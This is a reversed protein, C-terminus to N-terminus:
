GPQRWDSHPRRNLVFWGWLIEGYGRSRLGRRRFFPQLRRNLRCLNYFPVRPYYHHELHFNSWLFLFHWLPNGDVLTSWGAPDAPDIDYHQGLRNLSFAVPFMFFLPVVYVRLLTWGGASLAITAILALHFLVNGLRERRITRQEPEDYTAAERRSGRAYIVFLAPTWYLLKFLRTNRRPSLHARKPDDRSSGLEQHHDLHWTRFQSASIGSPMAYLLGLLRSLRPRDRRFIAEHVQEHLLVVTGLVNFGQLLAAPAWLWPWRAQWLAWGCLLMLGLLRAAVVFHRAPRVRHLERLEEVDLASKLEQKLERVHRAYHHRNKM